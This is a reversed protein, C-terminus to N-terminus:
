QPPIVQGDNRQTLAALVTTATSNALSRVSGDCFVFQCIGPHESGFRTAHYLSTDNPGDCLPVGAGAVRSYWWEHDGNYISGDGSSNAEGPVGIGHQTRRVYKEGLMTTSNTGDTIVAVSVIGRYSAVRGGAVSSRATIIAGNANVSDQWDPSAGTYRVLNGCTAAFDGLAGPASGDGQTSLRGPGRRSPCFFSPVQVARAEAPQAYYQAPLDWLDYGAQQELFPLILVAWSVHQDALRAPPLFGRSEHFQLCALGVQRMNGSCSTRRAAERASQVAPLLLGILVAIIAIVVLLEVLTFARARRVLGRCGTGDTANAVGGYPRAGHPAADSAWPAPVETSPERGHLIARVAM